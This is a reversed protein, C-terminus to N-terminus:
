RGIDLFDAGTRFDVEAKSLADDLRERTLKLTRYAASSFPPLTDDGPEGFGMGRALIDAVHVIATADPFDKAMAPNHHHLLPETLRQPFHWEVALWGAVRTHTIGLVEEEAAGIYLNREKATQITRSYDEPAVYALVVKGLDHLLGAVMTEEPDPHGIAQALRRCIVACGLSHEWLTKGPRGVIDFVATAMVLGKVANFGLLVVAHTINSIRGPFGYVPSNVLRLLKASLVQDASVLRAIDEATTKNDDAINGISRVISPLTPLCAMEVVRQQLQDLTPPM